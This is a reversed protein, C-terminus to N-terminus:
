GIINGFWMFRTRFRLSFFFCLTHMMVFKYAEHTQELEMCFTNSWLNMNTLCSHKANRLYLLWTCSKWTCVFHIFMCCGHKFLIFLCIVNKNLYHACCQHEFFVLLHIVDMDIGYLGIFLFNWVVIITSDHGMFNTIVIHIYFSKIKFVHGFCFLIM